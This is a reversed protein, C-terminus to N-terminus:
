KRRKDYDGPVAARRADQAAQAQEQTRIGVNFRAADPARRGYSDVLVDLKDEVEKSM